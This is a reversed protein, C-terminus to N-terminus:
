ACYLLQISQRIDDILDQYVTCLLPDGSLQEILGNLRDLRQENYVTAQLYRERLAQRDDFFSNSEAVNSFWIQVTNLNLRRRDTLDRDLRALDHWAGLEYNLAQGLQNALELSKFFGKNTSEVSPDILLLVLVVELGGWRTGASFYDDATQMLKPSDVVAQIFRRIVGLALEVQAGDMVAQELRFRISQYLAHLLSLAAAVSGSCECYTQLQETTLQSQALCGTGAIFREIRDPHFRILRRLMCNILIFLVVLTRKQDMLSAITQQAITGRELVAQLRDTLSILSLIWEYSKDGGLIASVLTSNNDATTTRQSKSSWTRKSLELMIPPQTNRQLAGFAVNLVIRRRYHQQQQQEQAEFLFINLQGTSHQDDASPVTFLHRHIHRADLYATATQLDVRDVALMWDVVEQVTQPPAGAALAINKAHV